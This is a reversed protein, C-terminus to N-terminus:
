GVIKRKKRRHLSNNQKQMDDIQRSQELMKRTSEDFEEDSLQYTPNKSDMIKKGMEPNAFSGTFIAYDTAFEHEDEQDKLWNLFM